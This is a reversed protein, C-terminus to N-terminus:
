NRPFYADSKSLLFRARSYADARELSFGPTIGSNVVTELSSRFLAFDHLPIAVKEALLFSYTLQQGRTGQIATQLHDRAELLTQQSSEKAALAVGLLAHARFHDLTPDLTIVRRLTSIVKPLYQPVYHNTLLVIRQWSWAFNLLLRSQAPTAQALFRNWQDGPASWAEIGEDGLLSNLHGELALESYGEISASLRELGAVNEPTSLQAQEQKGDFSLESYKLFTEAILLHARTQLNSSASPSLSLAGELRSTIGPFIPLVDDPIIGQASLARLQSEALNIEDELNLAAFSIGSFLFLVCCSFLYIRNKM